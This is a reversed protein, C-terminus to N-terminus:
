LLPCRQNPERQMWLLNGVEEYAAAWMDGYQKQYLGVVHNRVKDLNGDLSEIIKTATKEGVRDIGPINDSTDGVMMQWFLMLDAQDQEVFILEDKVWNYNYGPIMQLDKDTTVIVTTGSPAACQTIGLADDTEIDLIERAGWQNILYDKIETFYKPKHTKDRNGKYPKLTALEHRFNGKGDIFYMAKSGDFKENVAELVTKVNHLAIAQYDTEALMEEIREPSADPEAAKADKKLQADAAFGCRYRLIDLDFLPILLKENSM